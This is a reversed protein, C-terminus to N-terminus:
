HTMTSLHLFCVFCGVLSRSYIGEVIHVLLDSKDFDYSLRFHLRGLPVASSNRGGSGSGISSRQTVLVPRNHHSGSRSLLSESGSEPGSSSAADNSILSEEDLGVHITTERKYLEPQLAGTIILPDDENFTNATINFSADSLM